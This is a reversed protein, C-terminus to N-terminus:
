KNLNNNNINNKNNINNLSSSTNCKLERMSRAAETITM